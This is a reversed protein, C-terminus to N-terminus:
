LHYNKALEDTLTIAPSRELHTLIDEDSEGQLYARTSSRKKGFKVGKRVNWGAAIMAKRISSSSSYTSMICDRNSLSALLAFWETTWLSSNRKPSFADQYIADFRKASKFSKSAEPLSLRADGLIINISFNGLEKKFISFQSDEGFSIKELDKFLPNVRELYLILEEDIELSTFAVKTDELLGSEQLALFTQEIGVGLGLGVELISFPDEGRELMGAREIIRCGDIYHSKTESAAGSTNHFNEGYTKSFASQSGDETIILEHNKLNSKPM